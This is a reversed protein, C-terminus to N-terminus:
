EGEPGASCQVQDIQLITSAAATRFDELQDAYGDEIIADENAVYKGDVLTYAQSSSKLDEALKAVNAEPM